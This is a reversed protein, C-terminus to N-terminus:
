ADRRDYPRYFVPRQNIYIARIDNWDGGCIERASDEYPFMLWRDGANVKCREVEHFEDTGDQYSIQLLM